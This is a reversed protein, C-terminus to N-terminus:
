MAKLMPILHISAEARLKEVNRVVQEAWDKYM